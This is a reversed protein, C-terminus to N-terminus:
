QNPMRTLCKSCYTEDVSEDYEPDHPPCTAGILRLLKNRHRDRYLQRELPTWVRGRPGGPDGDEPNSWRKRDGLKDPDNAWPDTSRRSTTGWGLTLRWISGILVVFALALIAVQWWSLLEM